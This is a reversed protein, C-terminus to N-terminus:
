PFYHPFLEPLVAQSGEPIVAKLSFLLGEKEKQGQGKKEQTHVCETNHDTAYM